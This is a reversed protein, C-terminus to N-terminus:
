DEGLEVWDRQDDIIKEMTNEENYEEFLTEGKAFGTKNCVRNKKLNKIEDFLVKLALIAFLIGVGAQALDGKIIGKIAFFGGVILFILGLIIGEPGRQETKEISIHFGNEERDM